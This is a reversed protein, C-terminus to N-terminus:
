RPTLYISPTMMPVTISATKYDAGIVSDTDAYYFTPVSVNYYGRRGTVPTVNVVLNFRETEGARVKFALPLQGADARDAVLVAALNSNPIEGSVDSAARYLVGNKGSTVFTRSPAKAFYVDKNQARVDMSIRYEGRDSERAAVDGAILQATMSVPTVLVAATQPVQPIGSLGKVNIKVVNGNAFEILLEGGTFPVKEPQGYVRFVHPKRDKIPAYTGLKQSYANNIQRFTTPAGDPDGVEVVLPYLKRGLENDKSDSTSWGESAATHILTIKNITAEVYNSLRVTFAFDKAEPNQQGAGPAFTNYSVKNDTGSTNYEATIYPKVDALEIRLAALKAEAVALRNRLTMVQGETIAIDQLIVEPSRGDPFRKDVVALVAAAGNAGYIGAGEGSEVADFIYSSAGYSFACGAAVGIVACWVYITEKINLM